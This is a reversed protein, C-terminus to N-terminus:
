APPDNERNIAAQEEGTRADDEAESSEDIPEPMEDNLESMTGRMASHLRRPWPRSIDNLGGRPVTGPNALGRGRCPSVKGAAASSLRGQYSQDPSGGRKLQERRRAHERSPRVRAETDADLRPVRGIAASRGTRSAVSRRAASPVHGSRGGGRRSLHPWGDVAALLARLGRRPWQLSGRPAKAAGRRVSRSCQRTRSRCLQTLQAAAPAAREPARPRPGVRQRAPM